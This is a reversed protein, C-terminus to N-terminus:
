VLVLVVTSVASRLSATSTLRLDATGAWHLRGVHGVVLSPACRCYRGTALCYSTESLSYGLVPTVGKLKHRAVMTGVAIEGAAACVLNTQSTDVLV